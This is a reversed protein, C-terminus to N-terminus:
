VYAAMKKLIDSAQDAILARTHDTDKLTRGDYRCLKRMESAFRTVNPDDTLNLAPIIDLLDEINTVVTDHFNNEIKVTRTKGTRTQVDRGATVHYEKLSTAMHAVVKRMREWVSQMADQVTQQMTQEIQDKIKQSEEDSFKVRFDDAAPLPFVHFAFRFKNSIESQSPYDAPNFAGNWIAKAEKVYDPYEQVFDAKAELFEDSRKRMCEALKFYGKSTLIRSGDDKWPLSLNYLDARAAGAINGIKDLAAKAILQKNYRGMKPDTVLHQKAVDASIKKDHKKASWQSISLSALMAKDQLNAM